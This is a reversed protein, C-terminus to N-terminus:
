STALRTATGPGGACREHEYFTFRVGGVTCGEVCEDCCYSEEQLQTPRMLSHDGTCAPAGAPRLPSPRVPSHILASLMYRKQPALSCAHPLWVRVVATHPALM